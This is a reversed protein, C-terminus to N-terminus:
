PVSCIQPDDALRAHHHMDHWGDAHKVERRMTGELQYGSREAVRCSAINQTSHNVEIRHLNLQDFLWATLTSLARSAIRGGRAAPTVWYSIEAGGEHLDLRRVSIQGLVAAGDAVAWGAGSEDQWRGPWAAVWARAEDESM